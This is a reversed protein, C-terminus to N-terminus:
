WPRNHCGRGYPCGFTQASVTAHSPVFDSATALEPLQRSLFFALHYLSAAQTIFAQTMMKCLVALPPLCTGPPNIQEGCGAVCTLHHTCILTRILSRVACAALWWVSSAVEKVGDLLM